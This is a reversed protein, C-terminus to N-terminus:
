LHPKRVVWFILLVVAAGILYTTAASAVGGTALQANQPMGAPPLIRVYRYLADTGFTTVVTLDESVESPQTTAPFPFSKFHALLGHMDPLVDVTDAQNSGVFVKPNRWLDKGRILLTQEPLAGDAVSIQTTANHAAADGSIRTTAQIAYDQGEAGDSNIEIQPVRALRDNYYGIFASIMAPDGPLNVRVCDNNSDNKKEIAPQTTSGSGPTVGKEEEDRDTVAFTTDSAFEWAPTGASMPHVKLGNDDIWVYRAQIDVSSWWGPVAIEATFSYRVPTQTFRPNGDSEITYKPGVLVGFMDPACEFGLELPQRKIANLLRQSNRLYTSENSLSAGKFAASLALSLELFDERTSIDSINQDYELPTVNLIKPQNLERFTPDNSHVTKAVFAQFYPDSPDNETPPLKLSNTYYSVGSSQICDIKHPFQIYKGYAADYKLLVGLAIALKLEDAQEKKEESTFWDRRNKQGKTLEFDVLAQEVQTLTPELTPPKPFSAPSAAGTTLFNFTDLTKQDDAPHTTATPGSITPKIQDAHRDFYNAGGQNLQQILSDLYGEPLEDKLLRGEFNRTETEFDSDLSRAWLAYIKAFNPDDLDVPTNPLLKLFVIAERKESRGPVLSVDFKLSYLTRGRLDHSDDLETDRLGSKVVNRYAEKDAFQDVFSEQAQGVIPQGSPVTTPMPTSSSTVAAPNGAAGALNVSTQNVLGSLLRTDSLAQFTPQVKDTLALQSELWNYEQLRDDVLRERTFVEPQSVFVQRSASEQGCGALVLLVGLIGRAWQTARM